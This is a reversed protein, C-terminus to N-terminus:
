DAARNELHSWFQKILIAGFPFLIMGGIGLLRYGGYLALLTALPDLGMQKGLLRPELATRILAAAGYLILLGSGLFTNGQLFLFLSWPILILGTGLAPLADILAIVLGFLLPYDIQLILFGATLVLASICMLKLQAKCWSGLTTKIRGAVASTRQQWLPPMKKKWLSRLRPLEAALMFSSLVATLLFLILDPIRKLLGSVATFLWGYAKEAIGAGNEAADTITKTLIQAIGDPFRNGIALLQQRWSVLIESFAALTAPLSRLFATLEQWLLRCLVAMVLAVLLYVGAVGMGAAAWRPMHLQQQLRDVAPEAARAALLGLLFPLLIPTLFRLGLWAALIGAAVPLATRWIKRNEM